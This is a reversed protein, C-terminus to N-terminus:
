LEELEVTAAEADRRNKEEVRKCLLAFEKVLLGLLRRTEEDSKWKPLPTSKITMTSWWSLVLLLPTTALMFFLFKM